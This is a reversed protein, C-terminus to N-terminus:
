WGADGESEYVEPEEDTTDFEVDPEGLEDRGWRAHRTHLLRLSEPIPALHVLEKLRKVNHRQPPSSYEAPKDSLPLDSYLTELPCGYEKRARVFALLDEADESRETRVAFERLNPWPLSGREQPSSLHERLAVDDEWCSLACFRVSPFCKVLRSDIYGGVSHLHLTQLQPYPVQSRSVFETLLETTHSHYVSGLTLWELNSAKLGIVFRLAFNEQNAFSIVLKQLNPLNTVLTREEIIPMDIMSDGLTLETLQSATGLLAMFDHYGMYNDTAPHAHIELKRVSQFSPIFRLVRLGSVRVTQLLPTACEGNEEEFRFNSPTDHMDLICVHLYVLRPAHAPVLMRCIPISDGHIGILDITASRWRYAHAFLHPVFPLFTIRTDPTDNSCRIRIDLSCDGSRTLFHDIRALQLEDDEMDRCIVYIYSWLLPTSIATQRWAQCVHSVLVSFPLLGVLKADDVYGAEFIASLIESPLVSIPM